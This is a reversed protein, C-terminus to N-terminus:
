QSHRCSLDDFREVAKNKDLVLVEQMSELGLYKSKIDNIGKTIDNMEGELQAFSEIDDLEYVIEADNVLMGIKLIFLEVMKVYINKQHDIKAIKINAEAVTIRHFACEVIPIDNAKLSINSGILIIILFLLFFKQM